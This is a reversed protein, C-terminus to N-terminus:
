SSDSWTDAQGITCTFTERKDFAIEAHTHKSAINPRPLLTPSSHLLDSMDHPRSRINQIQMSRDKSVQKHVCINTVNILNRLQHHIAPLTSRLKYWCQSRGQSGNQSAISLLIGVAAVKNKADGLPLGSFLALRLGSTCTNTQREFRQDAAVYGCICKGPMNRSNVCTQLQAQRLTIVKIHLRYLTTPKGLHRSHLLSAGTSTRDSRSLRLLCAEKRYLHCSPGPVQALLKQM